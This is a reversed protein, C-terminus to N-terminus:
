TKQDHQKEHERCRLLPNKPAMEATNRFILRFEKGDVM